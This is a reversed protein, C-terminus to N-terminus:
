RKMSICLREYHSWEAVPIHWVNENTRQPHKNCQIEASFLDAPYLEVERDEWEGKTHPPFYYNVIHCRTWRRFERPELLALKHDRMQDNTVLMPRLGPVRGGKDELPVRLNPNTHDVVSAFMWYYDDLCHLPVAYMKEAELLSKVMTLENQSLEQFGGLPVSFKRATYKEPMIILPREGMRELKDYIALVQSYHITGHGYYAVNPGDIFVTYPQSSEQRPRLWESFELLKRKAYNGDRSEFSRGKARLKQGFEEHQSAAMEVLTERVHDRERETLAFLKLRVGTEPCIATTNDVLVRRILLREHVVDSDKGAEITANLSSRFAKTITMAAEDTLELLDGAMELLICDLLGPGSLSTFGLDIDTKISPADVFFTGEQALCAIIDAYTLPELYVGPSERMQRFLKLVRDVQRQECYYALLPQFTRLKKWDSSEAEKRLSPDLQLKLLREAEDAHGRATLGKIRLTLTKENPAFFHDHVEAVQLSLSSDNKDLSFLYMYTTLGNEFPMHGSELLKRWGIRAPENTQYKACLDAFYSLCRTYYDYQQYSLGTAEIFRTKQSSLFSKLAEKDAKSSDPMDALVSKTCRLLNQAPLADEKTLKKLARKNEIVQEMISLYSSELTTDTTASAVSPSMSASMSSFTLTVFKRQSLTYRSLKPTQQTNIRATWSWGFADNHFAVVALDYASAMLLLVFIRKM